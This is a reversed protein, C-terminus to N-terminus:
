HVAMNIGLGCHLCSKRNVGQVLGCSGCIIGNVPLRINDTDAFVGEARDDIEFAAIAIHSQLSLLAPYATL